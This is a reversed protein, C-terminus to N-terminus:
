GPGTGSGSYANYMEPQRAENYMEVPHRQQAPPHHGYNPGAPPPHYPRPQPYFPRQQQPAAPPRTTDLFPLGPPPLPLSLLGKQGPQYGKDQDKRGGQHRDHYDHRSRRSEREEGIEGEEMEERREHRRKRRRRHHPREPEPSPSHEGDELEGAELSTVAAERRKRNREKFRAGRREEEEDYFDQRGPPPQHHHQHQHDRM